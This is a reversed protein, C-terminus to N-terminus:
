DTSEEPLIFIVERGEKGKHIEQDEALQSIASIVTRSGAGKTEKVRAILAQRKSPGDGLADLVAPICRELMEAGGDEIDGAYVPVIDPDSEQFKFSFPPHKPGWKFRLHEVKVLDNAKTISLISDSKAVKVTSGRIEDLPSSRVLGAKRRHDPLIFTVLALRTIQILRAFAQRVPTADNENSGGLIDSVPDLAVLTLDYERILGYLEDAGEDKDLMHTLGEFRFLPIDTVERHNAQAKLRLAFRDLPMEFDFFGSVGHGAEFQGLWLGGCAHATLLDQVVLSKGQDPRGAILNLSGQSILGPVVMPQEKIEMQLLQAFSRPSPTDQLEEAVAGSSPPSTVVEDPQHGNRPAYYETVTSLSLEITAQGYTRGDSYHVEDWKNRFLGSQPFLQVVRPGDGGTWFALGNTLALEAESQSGYGTWDGNWLRAFKDGNKAAKAKDILVATDLDNPTPAHQAPTVIKAPFVKAHITEIETQRSEITTPTGAIHWGTFTLYRSTDYCEFQSKKRGGPPLHGKVIIRIGTGSPSFETYSNLAKITDLAWEDIVVTNPDRCNDLDFGTYDDGDTLVFGVGDFGGAQYVDLVAEFSNWTGPDSHSALKGDVQYPPKTWPKAESKDPRYEYRFGVWQDIATLDRPINAAQVELATPRAVAVSNVISGM